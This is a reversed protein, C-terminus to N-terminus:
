KKAVYYKRTAIQGNYDLASYAVEYIYGDALNLTANQHIGGAIVVNMNAGQNARQLAAKCAADGDQASASGKFVNTVAIHKKYCPTIVEATYTTPYITITSADVFKVKGLTGGLQSIKNGEVFLAIPQVRASINRIFNVLKGNIKDLFNQITNDIKNEIRTEYYEINGLYDNVYGVLKAIDDVLVKTNNLDYNVQGLIDEVQSQFSLVFYKQSGDDVFRYYTPDAAVSRGNITVTKGDPSITVDDTLKMYVTINFKGAFSGDADIPKIDIKAIDNAVKNQLFDVIKNDKIRPNITNTIYNDVRRNIKYILNMVRYYGDVYKEDDTLLTKEFKNWFDPSFGPAKVATAAIGYNSYVSRTDGDANKYDAKVALAPLIGNFQNYLTGVLTAISPFTGSADKAKTASVVTEFTNRFAQAIKKSDIKVKVKDIDAKSLHADAAYFGNAVSRTYGFTVLKSSPLLNKLEIGSAEEQSNMLKIPTKSFDVGAPNITLYVKGANDSADSILTGARGNIQGDVSGIMALDADTLKAFRTVSPDAYYMLESSPFEYPTDAKGYFAVLVNSNVGAPINFTGYMPNYTGQVIVGTIQNDIATKINTVTTTLGEIATKNKEINGKNTAVDKKVAEVDKKVKDIAKDLATKYTEVKTDLKGIKTDLTSVQTELTSIKGEATTMKGELTSVKGEVTKMKGELSIIKGEQLAVTGALTAVEGTLLTVAGELKGVKGDLSLVKGDLIGLHGEIGLLQGTITLIQGEIGAIEGQMVTVAGTLGAIVLDQLADAAKYAITLDKVAQALEEKTAYNKKLDEVESKLDAIATILTSLDVPTGPVLGDVVGELLGLKYLVWHLTKDLTEIKDANSNALTLAATADKQVDSIQSGLQGAITALDDKVKGIQGVLDKYDDVMKQNLEDKTKGIQEMVDEYKSLAKQAEQYALDAKDQAAQVAKNVTSLEAALVATTVYQSLDLGEIATQLKAIDIKNQEVDSKLTSLGSTAEQLKAIDAQVTTLTNQLGTQADKLEKIVQADNVVNKAITEVDEKTLSTPYPHAVLWENLVSSAIKAVQEPTLCSCACKAADILAQVEATTSYAKLAKELEDDIVDLVDATTAYPALYSAIDEKTIVDKIAETILNKVEAATLGPTLGELAKAIADNILLQIKDTTAYDALAQKVADNILAKVDNESLVGKMAENVANQVDAATTYNKLRETVIENVLVKVANEDLGNNGVGKLAETVIKTVLNEIEAESMGPQVTKLAEAILKNVEDTTPYANLADKGLVDKLAETIAKQIELAIDSASIHPYDAVHGKLADQIAKTVLNEVEPQTMGQKWGALAVKIAKDIMGDVEAATLHNDTAAYANIAKDILSEIYAQTPIDSKLAYDALAKTIAAEILADVQGKDLIQHNYIWETIITQVDDKTLGQPNKALYAAILTEVDDSTLGPNTVLYGKILDEVDSKSVGPHAAAYDEIMKQVEAKQADSLKSIVDNIAATIAAAVDSETMYKDGNNALADSISQDIMAQIRADLTGDGCTCSKIAALAANIADIQDQLGKVQAALLTKLNADQAAIADTYGNVLEQKNQALADEETDKCSTVFGASSFALALVLLNTFKRRM